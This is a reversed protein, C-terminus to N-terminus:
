RRWACSALASTPSTPSIMWCSARCVVYAVREACPWSMSAAATRARSCPMGSLSSQACAAHHGRKRVKPGLLGYMFPLYLHQYKHYDHVRQSPATVRVDPDNCRIDPDRDNVNTFCHHGVVHQQRWM